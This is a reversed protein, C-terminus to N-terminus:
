GGASPCTSIAPEGAFRQQIWAAGDAVAGPAAAGHGDGNEYVRREVV